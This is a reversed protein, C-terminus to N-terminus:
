RERLSERAARLLPTLFYEIIRRKGIKVEVTAMMGPSIRVPEDQVLVTDRDLRVRVVYVLGQQEDQVADQSVELVEGEVTGYRTYPFTQLKVEATQAPRVFGIDKNPLTAEVM